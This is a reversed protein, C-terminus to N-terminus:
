RSYGDVMGRSLYDASTLVFLIGLWFFGAVVVVWILKTGYRVHMFFLIVLVAKTVAITMAVVNNLPGFDFFAVIVTLVTLIMLTAFIKYYLKPEVIHESM